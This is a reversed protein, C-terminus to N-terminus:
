VLLFPRQKTPSITISKRSTPSYKKKLVNQRFFYISTLLRAANSLLSAHVRVHVCM